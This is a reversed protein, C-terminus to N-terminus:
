VELEEITCDNTNLPNNQTNSKRKPFKTAEEPVNWAVSIKDPKNQGTSPVHLANEIGNKCTETSKTDNSGQGSPVSDVTGQPEDNVVDNRMPGNYTWGFMDLIDIYINSELISDKLESDRVIVIGPIIITYVVLSMERMFFGVMKSQKDTRILTVVVAVLFSILEVMWTTVTIQIGLVFRRHRLIKLDDSLLKRLKIM